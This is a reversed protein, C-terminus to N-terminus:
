VIGTRWEDLLDRFISAFPGLLCVGWFVALTMGVIAPRVKALVRERLLSVVGLLISIVPLAASACLFFTAVRFSVREGISPPPFYEGPGAAFASFYRGVMPLLFCWGIFFSVPAALALVMSWTGPPDFSTGVTSRSVADPIDFDQGCHYCTVVQGLIEAGGVRDAGCQPCSFIM